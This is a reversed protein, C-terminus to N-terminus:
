TATWRGLLFAVLMGGALVTGAVVVAKKLAPVTEAEFGDLFPDLIPDVLDGIWADRPDSPPPPLKLGISKATSYVVGLGASRGVQRIQPKYERIQELYMPRVIEMVDNMSLGKVTRTAANVLDDLPGGALPRAGYAAALPGVHAPLTPAIVASATPVLHRM